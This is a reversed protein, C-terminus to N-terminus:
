LTDTIPANEAVGLKPDAKVLKNKKSRRRRNKKKKKSSPAASSISLSDLNDTLSEMTFINTPSSCAAPRHDRRCAGVPFVDIAMSPWLEIKLPLPYGNLEVISLTWDSSRPIEGPAPAVEMVDGFRAFFRSLLDVTMGRPVQRLLYRSVKAVPLRFSLRVGDVFFPAALLRDRVATSIVEVIVQHGPACDSGWLCRIENATVRSLLAPVLSNQKIIMNPPPTAVVAIAERIHKLHAAYLEEAVSAMM